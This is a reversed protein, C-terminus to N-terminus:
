VDKNELQAVHSLFKMAREVAIVDGPDSFVTDWIEGDEGLWRIKGTVNNRIASLFLDEQGMKGDFDELLLDGNVDYQVYFGMQQFIEAANVCTEPYNSDMWSFWADTQKGGSYSGGRKQNHHTVNLACMQDYVVDLRDAAIRATSKVIRINYGM